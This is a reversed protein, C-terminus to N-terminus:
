GVRFYNQPKSPNGIRSSRRKNTPRYNLETSLSYRLGDIIHNFDDEPVNLPDGNKDMKWQYNSFEDITNKCDPHIIINSYTQLKKIGSVISGAGKEAGIARIGLSQYEAISKPEASDCYVPEDRIIPKVLKASDTNLIKKEYIENCIYLINNEYACRVFAFPDQSFGWDLGNCYHEFKYIDFEEVSWNDFILGEAVGLEGLGYVRWFNSTGDGRKSEIMDIITQELFPNDKYTSKIMEVNEPQEVLLKDHVWFRGTPNFDIFVTERTRIMLQEAIGYHTHNAENMFLIDRRGGHAKGIKDISIFNITGGSPFVISKDGVSYMSHFDFGFGAMVMPMDNIVGAKLHPVTLGLIDIQKNHKSAIQVLLQLISITKGASTGGSNVIYRKKGTIYVEANKKFVESLRLM